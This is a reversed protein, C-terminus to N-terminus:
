IGLVRCTNEFAAILEQQRPIQAIVDEDLPINKQVKGSLMNESSDGAQKAGTKDMISYSDSLPQKLEMFSSVKSLTDEPNDRVASARFCLTRKKDKVKLYMSAISNVREIYYDIAGEYTAYAHTPNGKKYLKVTSVVSEFPERISFLLKVAGHNLIPESIVHGDHLVKDFFIPKLPKNPNQQIYRVKQRYLSKWSEYGLHMEYYGSVQPNSGILHSLLSSNSRM